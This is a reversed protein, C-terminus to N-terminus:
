AQEGSAPGRARRLGDNARAQADKDGIRRALSLAQTFEIRALDPRSIALFAEGLGNLALAEGAPDGIERFLDLAQRHHSAAQEHRGQRLHVDGSYTLTYAETPRDGTQRCLVLTQQLHSAAQEYRGQRLYLGGLNGLSYAEGPRDGAQRYLALAQEHHGAAQEYRGLRREAGGLNNLTRAEGARDGLQRYLDLAQRQHSAAQQYRGQRLEIGGLTGVARAEGTRDGAQRFLTLAQRLLEAAEQYRGRWLDIGALIALVRAEGTRDGAQRFLTLAQQLLEAAQQYRGRRSDIVGLSTLANAEAGPDDLRHAATRAYGHIAIAEPYHGGTDLYRHLTAALLIAQDPWGHASAHAAAAVLNPRQADLWARAASADAMPPVPSGAAPIRPRRHRESPRLVDMAAAATHLYHDFLRTLAAHQQEEGDQASALEAAYARLLDHMQYRGPQERLILHARTLTELLDSAQRVDADFLAAVAYPDLDAGPHLGSLRFARAAQSNLHQYSWSFVARVATDADGGANLLDLRLRRDTLETVLDALPVGAHGAALEAAVRLALPLQCCQRALAATAAPDVAARSGILMRLLEAAEQPLMLGLDLRRAGDRAVLGSLADRSTVVVMASATGPLLPRVQDVSGANDLLVLMRRGALLSRYIAAREAAEAPVDHGAVGLARLFGALADGPAVPRESDYGHLNVYLQGDPFRDTVQHAWNVALATKGVGATGSIAAIVVSRLERQGPRDLMAMLAALEAARGTFHQVAAPLQRSVVLETAIAADTPGTQPRLLAPDAALIRQHLEQLDAGPEVGLETVLVRRAQQYVTLAEGHRHDQCLALMLLGYVRERLPYMLALRRLEGVAATGRGLQLAAELWAETAQVRMETLRPAERATLLESGADALPEGRWLGLGEAARAAAIQWAQQRAASQAADLLAEFRSVDLEHDAVRIVYGGPVTRIRGREAAGLAKRLRAMYNQVTVRASSPPWHGWLAEALEEPGVVRGASLLLTALVARQKGAAIPLAVGDCRVEVPGLLRFEM